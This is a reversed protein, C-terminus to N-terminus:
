RVFLYLGLAAGAGLLAVALILAVRAPLSLGNWFKKLRVWLRRIRVEGWDLLRAVFLWDSALLAGAILFFLVAPGPIFVLVFGVAASLGALIFRLIMPGLGRQKSRQHQHYRARFREGPRGEPVLHWKKHLTVPM